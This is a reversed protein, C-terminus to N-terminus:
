LFPFITFCVKYLMLSMSYCRSFAEHGNVIGFATFVLEYHSVKSIVFIMWILVVAAFCLEKPVIYWNRFNM